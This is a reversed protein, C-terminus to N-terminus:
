LSVEEVSQFLTSAQALADALPVPPYDSAQLLHIFKLTRFGDFWHNIHRIAMAPSQAQKHLHLFLNDIGLTECAVRSAASLGSLERIHTARVQWWNSLLELLIKLESFVHPDYSPYQHIDPLALLKEVAPGTGFPTRQSRRAEIEIPTGNLSIVSGLKALKNLLYFDEGGSRKPFGRVRCYDNANIALCSGITHFAYPSNAWALGDVYYRLSQEYIRTAASVPEAGGTHLFPYVAASGLLSETRQFYDPPLTADADTTHVWRSTVVQQQILQAAIDCGIKRALGVGQKPDLQNNPSFRDVAILSAYDRNFLHLQQHSHQLLLNDQLWQWLQQNTECPGYHRPQNIVLVILANQDSSLELLSQLFVPQENFVPIVLLHSYAHPFDFDKLLAIETEAYRSLYQQYPNAMGM